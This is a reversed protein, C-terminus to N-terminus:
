EEKPKENKNEQQKKFDEEMQKVSLIHAYISEADYKISEKTPEKGDPNIVAVEVALYAPSFVARSIIVKDM